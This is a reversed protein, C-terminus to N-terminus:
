TVDAHPNVWVLRDDDRVLKWGKELMYATVEGPFLHVTDHLNDCIDLSTFRGSDSNGELYADLVKRWTDDERTM